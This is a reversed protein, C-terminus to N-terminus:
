THLSLNETGTDMVVKQRKSGPRAEGIAWAGGDEETKWPRYRVVVTDPESM